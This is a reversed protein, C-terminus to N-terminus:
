PRSLRTGAGAAPASAPLPARNVARVDSGGGIGSARALFIEAMGGVALRCVLEYKGLEGPSGRSSRLLGGPDVVAPVCRMTGFDSRSNRRPVVIHARRM